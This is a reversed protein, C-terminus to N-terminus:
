RPTGAACRALAAAMHNKLAHGAASWNLRTEYEARVARAMQRYRDPSCWAGALTAAAAEASFPSDALWGTVGHRVITPIGGVNSAFAPVGFAAAECLAIGYAEAHSLFLLFHSERLLRHFLERGRPTSHDIFGHVRAHALDAAALEPTCGVIELTAALGRARLARVLALAEPGGKRDWEKGLFLLHLPDRSRTAIWSEVDARAPAAALNAGFPVVAMQAAPVGYDRAAEAQAWDSSFFSLTNNMLSARDAEDVQRRSRACLTELGFYASLWSRKTADLYAFVPIDAPLYSHVPVGTALCFVADCDGTAFRGAIRAAARRLVAPEVQLYHTRRGFRKHWQHRLRLSWPCEFPIRDFVALEVGATELARRTNWVLGSWLHPDDARDACAYLLKM